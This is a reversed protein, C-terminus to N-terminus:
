RQAATSRHWAVTRRAGEAIDVEPEFGLEFKARRYSFHRDLVFFDVGSEDIPLQRGAVRALPRAAHIALRVVLEPVHLRPARVGLAAAISEALERITIPRPGAIHYTRGREGRDFAAVMGRTADDIYTPHCVADGRGIYFFRGRQISEFLRWVHHDGPGYVFEPRVVIALAGNEREFDEITREAAAKAREYVNTPRYHAEETADPADRPIPGLLGPSGVHLVRSVGAARSAALVNATGGAHVRLFQAEDAGARGLVGACHITAKAGDLARELSPRDLIDGRAIEVGLSGLEAVARADSSPRVLARVADGRRRLTRVISGGLFGTAGTVLVTM